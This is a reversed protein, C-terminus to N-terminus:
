DPPNIGITLSTTVIANRDGGLIQYVPLGARRGLWDHLAFDLAARASSLGSLAAWVGEVRQMEWPAITGLETAWREIDARAGLATEEGDGVNFPSMEGIGVIGDHEVEVFLNESGASTGRSITLPHLKTLKLISTRVHLAGFGGM